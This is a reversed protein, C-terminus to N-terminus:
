NSLDSCLQAMDASKITDTWSQLIDDTADEGTKEKYEEMLRQLIEGAFDDAKGAEKKCPSERCINSVSFSGRLAEAEYDKNEVKNGSSVPTDLTRYLNSVSYQGLMPSSEVPASIRKAQLKPSAYPPPQAVNVEVKHNEKDQPIKSEKAKSSLISTKNTVKAKARAAVALLDKKYCAMGSEDLEQLKEWHQKAFFGLAQTNLKTIKAMLLNIRNTRAILEIVQLLRKGIGQERHSEEVHVEVFAAPEGEAEDFIAGELSISVSAFAIIQREDDLVLLFRAARDRLEEQRESAVWRYGSENYFGSLHMSALDYMKAREKQSLQKASRHEISYTKGEVEYTGFANSFPRFLDKDEGTPEFLANRLM